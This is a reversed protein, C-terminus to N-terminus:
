IGRGEILEIDYLDIFNEDVVIRKLDFYKMEKALEINFSAIWYEDGIVADSSTVELIEPHKRLADKLISASGILDQDQIKAFLVDKNDFGLSTNKLNYLQLNVVIIGFIVMIFM